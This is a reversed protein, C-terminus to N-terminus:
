DEGHLKEFEALVKMSEGASGPIGKTTTQFNNEKKFSTIFNSLKMSTSTGTKTSPCLFKKTETFVTDDMKLSLNKM